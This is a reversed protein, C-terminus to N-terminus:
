EAQHILPMGPFPARFSPLTTGELNGVDATCLDNGGFCLNRPRPLIAGGPPREPAAPAPLEQLPALLEELGAQDLTEVGLQEAKRLKSGARAGAVLFDTRGSVSGTVKGGLATIRDAAAKRTMGELMGTLVFVKGELPRDAAADPDPEEEFRLGARRLRDLLRRNDDSAFFTCLSEAIRAGIDAVEELEEASAAALADLRRFRRALLSATSDGVFRIGLAHILRSLRREKSEELSRITRLAAKEGLRADNTKRLDALQAAELAYLDAPDRVLGAEVLEGVLWDGLGEIDLARRSAFHRVAQKRQAPCVLGGTCRVAAEGESRVAESGCV